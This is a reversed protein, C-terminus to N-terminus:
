PTNVSIRAEMMQMQKLRLQKDLIEKQLTLAEKDVHVQIPALPKSTPLRFEYGKEIVTKLEDKTLRSYIMTTEIDSHGLFEQIDELPVGMRRLNTGCVHRFTHLHYKYRPKGDEQLYDVILLGAKKLANVFKDQYLRKLSNLGPKKRNPFRTPIVYEEESNYYQWTKWVRLFKDNIPVKRDKGYGTKFRKVNKGDKVTIMGYSLDVDQWKLSLIEGIRLGQFCGIFIVMAMRSDNIYHLVKVLQERTLVCPLREKNMKFDSNKKEQRIFKKRGM